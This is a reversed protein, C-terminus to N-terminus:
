TGQKKGGSVILGDEAALSVHVELILLFFIDNFSSNIHSGNDYCIILEYSRPAIEILLRHMSINYLMPRLM